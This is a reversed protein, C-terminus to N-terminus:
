VGHTMRVLSDMHGTRGLLWKVKENKQTTLM